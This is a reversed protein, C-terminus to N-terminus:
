KKMLSKVNGKVPTLMEKFKKISQIETPDVNNLIALWFSIMDGLAILYIQHHLISDGVAQVELVVINNEHFIKKMIDMRLIVRPSDLSSRILVPVFNQLLDKAANQREWGMIENHNMEPIVHSFVHMKSNENLQAKWRLAAAGTKEASGYIIPIKGQLKQAIQFANNNPNDPDDWKDKYKKVSACGDELCKQNIDGIAAEHFIRLLIGLNYGLAARPPYGGPLDFLPYSKEKAIGALQGGSTLCIIKCKKSEADRLASLSEETNGSYSSIVAITNTNAFFPVAYQRNVFFPKTLQDHFLTRIFDGAIASGGMGCFVIHDFPQKLPTDTKGGTEWGQLLHEQLAQIKQLM